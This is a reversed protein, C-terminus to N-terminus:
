VTFIYESSAFLLRGVFTILLCILASTVLRVTVTFHSKLKCDKMTGQFM